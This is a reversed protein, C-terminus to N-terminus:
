RRDGRAPPRAVCDSLIQLLRDTNHDLDHLTDYARRANDVAAAHFAPDDYLRVIWERAQSILPEPLPQDYPPQRCAEPFDLILGGAGMTEPIGGSNSGLVPIGNLLAEVIVRGASEWWLSPVLLARARGYIPRMDSTTPTLTVNALSDRERGLRRTVARLMDAWSGRTDVVEFRIDPRSHELSLALQIVFAAGKEPIPNVFLLHERTQPETRYDEPDIFTGIPVIDYGERAKYMRATVHSDTLMLSVDRCWRQGHNRPHALYVVAPIGRRRAEDCTLLTILSNDFFLVLDPQFVDLMRCYEDFWMQEEFSHMLRRRDGRTVLLRHELAGDRCNIFKGQQTQIQPMQNGFYGAGNPNVFITAGLIQVECGRKTVQKLIERAALAAGNTTDLLTNPSAWLIKM